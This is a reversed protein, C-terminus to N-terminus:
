PQTPYEALVDGLAAYLEHAEAPTLAARYRGEEVGDHLDLAVGLYVRPGSIVRMVLAADATDPIEIDWRVSREASM